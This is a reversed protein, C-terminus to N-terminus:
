AAVTTRQDQKTRGASVIWWGILFAVAAGSLVLGLGPVATSRIRIRSAAVVQDTGPVTVSIELPSDGLARAEVNLDLTTQGPPLEIVTGDQEVAVKDSSFRLQVRRTGASSNTVTLPLTSEQSAMTISNSRTISMFSLEQNLRVSLAQAANLRSAQNRNRDVVGLLEQQYHAPSTGGDVWVETYTAIEQRLGALEDGLDVLNQGAREASQLPLPTRDAAIDTLSVPNLVGPQELGAFVVDLAELSLGQPGGILVVPTLNDVSRLTLEALLRHAEGVDSAVANDATVIPLAGKDFEVRGSSSFEGFLDIGLSSVHAVTAAGAATLPTEVLAADLPVLDLAAVREATLRNEDYYLDQQGVEALASPDLSVLPRAVVPRGNVAEAFAAAGSPDNELQSLVGESLVVTVSQNQHNALLETTSAVTLGEAPAVTLLTTVGVVPIEAIELPLRILQTRLTALLGDAQRIEITVPYIGSDPIFLRDSDGSSSASRIPIALRWVQPAISELTTLPTPGVRNLAEPAQAAALEEPETVAGHIIAGVTVGDVAGSWSVDLEFAGDGAVLASQGALTLTGQAQAATPVFLPLMIAALLAGARVLHRRM